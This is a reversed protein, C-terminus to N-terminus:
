RILAPGPLSRIPPPPWWPAAAPAGGLVFITWQSRAVLEAASDLDPRDRARPTRELSSIRGEVYGLERWRRAHFAPGSHPGTRRTTGASHRRAASRRRATTPAQGRCGGVGRWCGSGPWARARCSAAAASPLGRHEAAMPAGRRSAAPRWYLAGPPRCNDPPQCRCPETRGRPHGGSQRHPARTQAGRTHLVYFAAEFESPPRPFPRGISHGQQTGAYGMRQSEGVRWYCPAVGGSLDWRHSRAPVLLAAVQRMQLSPSSWM